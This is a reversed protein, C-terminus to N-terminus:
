SKLQSTPTLVISFPGGLTRNGSRGRWGWGSPGLLSGLHGEAHGGPEYGRRARIGLAAQSDTGSRFKNPWDVGVTLTPGVSPYMVYRGRDKM